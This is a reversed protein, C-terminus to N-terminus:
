VRVVWSGNVLQPQESEVYDTWHKGAETLKWQVGVWKFEHAEALVTGNCVIQAGSVARHSMASAMTIHSSAVESTKPNEYVCIWHFM